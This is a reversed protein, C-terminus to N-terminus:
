FREQWQLAASGPGILVRPPRLGFLRWRGNILKASTIGVAAGALVDSLWHQDDNLRSWATGGAGAYLLVTAWPRHVEDAVSAALAFALTAHGSPLSHHSSFPSFRFAAKSESPRWRGLVLKGGGVVSGALLLSASIRAGGRTVRSDHAILGAALTGLGITLYVEPQGMKRLVSAAADAGDTRHRQISRELSEDALSSGGIIGGALAAQWWRIPAGATRVVYDGPESDPIQAAAPVPTVLAALFCLHTFRM